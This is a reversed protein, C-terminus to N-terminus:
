IDLFVTVRDSKVHLLGGNIVIKKVDGNTTRITLTCPKLLSMFNHHKPLIDFPGTANVASLSFAHGDYYRTFPSAVKIAMTLEQRGSLEEVVRSEQTEKEGEPKTFEKSIVEPDRPNM